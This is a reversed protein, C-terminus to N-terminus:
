THVTNSAGNDAINCPLAYALKTHQCREINPELGLSNTFSALLLASLRDFM